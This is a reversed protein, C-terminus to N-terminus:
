QETKVGTVKMYRRLLLTIYQSVKEIEKDKMDALIQEYLEETLRFTITQTKNQKM